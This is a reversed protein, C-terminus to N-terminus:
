KEFFSMNQRRTGPIIFQEKRKLFFKEKNIKNKTASRRQQQAPKERTTALPAQKRTAASPSRM